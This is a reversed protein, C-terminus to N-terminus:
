PKAGRGFVMRKVKKKIVFTPKKPPPPPAPAIKPWEIGALQCAAGITIKPYAELPLLCTGAPLWDREILHKHRHEIEDWRENLQQCLQDYRGDSLIPADRHYYLYSSILYWPALMNVSKAILMDLMADHKM